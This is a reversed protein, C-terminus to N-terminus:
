AGSRSVGLLTSVGLNIFTLLLSGLLAPGFGEIRVGPAIRGVAWLVAGNILLLFLGMSHVTLPMTLAVMLPRFFANAVGLVIAAVFASWWNEIEIGKIVKAVLMLLAATILMHALFEVM